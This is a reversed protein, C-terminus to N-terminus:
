HNAFMNLNNVINSPQSILKNSLLFECENSHKRTLKFIIPVEIVVM